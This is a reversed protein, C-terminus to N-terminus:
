NCDRLSCATNLSLLPFCVNLLPEMFVAQTQINKSTETQQVRAIDVSSVLTVSSRDIFVDQTNCDM